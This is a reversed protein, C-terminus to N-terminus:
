CRKGCSVRRARSPSLVLVGTAENNAAVYEQAVLNMGDHLARVVCVDALRYLALVQTIMLHQHLWLIPSWGNVGHRWNLDEVLAGIEESLAQYRPIHARSDPGAQILVVRERYALYKTLLQDFTRLREPIGKTYDLRDVGVCVQKGLLGHQVQLRDQEARVEPSDAHLSLAAFDTSIPFPHVLTEVGDHHFVSSREHDVRVELEREM